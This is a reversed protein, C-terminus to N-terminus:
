EFKASFMIFVYLVKILNILLKIKCYNLKTIKHHKVSNFHSTLNHRWDRADHYRTVNQWKKVNFRRWEKKKFRRTMADRSSTECCWENVHCCLMVRYSLTVAYRLSAVVHHWPIDDRSLTVHHFFSVINKFVEVKYRWHRIVRDRNM